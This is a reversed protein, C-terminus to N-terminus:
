ACVQIQACSRQNQLDDIIFLNRRLLNKSEKIRYRVTQRSEWSPGFNETSWLFNLSRRCVAFIYRSWFCSTDRHELCRAENVFSNGMFEDYLQRALTPFNQKRYKCDTTQLHKIYREPFMEPCSGCQITDIYNHDGFHLRKQLPASQKCVDHWHNKLHSNYEERSAFMHDFLYCDDYLCFFPTVKNRM